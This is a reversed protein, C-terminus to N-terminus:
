QALTYKRLVLVMKICDVQHGKELSAAPFEIIRQSPDIATQTDIGARGLRVHVAGAKQVFQLSMFFRQCAVAPGNGDRGVIEERKVVAAASQERHIAESLGKCIEVANEFDIRAKQRRTM